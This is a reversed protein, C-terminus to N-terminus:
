GRTARNPRLQEFLTKAATADDARGALGYADVLVKLMDVAYEEGSIAHLFAFADSPSIAPETAFVTALCIRAEYVRQARTALSEDETRAPRNHFNPVESVDDGRKWRAWRIRFQQRVSNPDSDALLPTAVFASWDGAQFLDDHPPPVSEHALLEVCPMPPPSAPHEPPKSCGALAITCLLARCIM